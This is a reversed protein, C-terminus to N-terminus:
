VIFCSTLRPFNEGDRIIWASLVTAIGRQTRLPFRLEYVEGYGNHERRKANESTAAAHKLAHELLQANARTIGLVSEFLRSKHQGCRHLPNLVYDQLKTGIDANEGNPLKM